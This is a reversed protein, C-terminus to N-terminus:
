GHHKVPDTVALRGSKTIGYMGVIDVPEPTLRLDSPVLSIIDDLEPTAITDFPQDHNIIDEVPENTILPLQFAQYDNIKSKARENMPLAM